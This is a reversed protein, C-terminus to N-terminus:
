CTGAPLTTDDVYHTVSEVGRTSVLHSTASTTRRKRGPM